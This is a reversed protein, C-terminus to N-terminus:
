LFGHERLLDESITNVPKKHNNTQPVQWLALATTDPTALGMLRAVYKGIIDAELNVMDGIRREHLTTVGITHPILSVGFGDPLLSAITLSVGDIAISGKPALLPLVNAPAAFEMLMAEGEPHLQKVRGIGDVHGLVLHGGLRGGLQLARELNVRSGPVLTHLATRRLTEATALATFHDGTIEVATLCAGNVSVSDGIHLDACILASRMTLRVEHATKRLATVVGVDEVIGTFM